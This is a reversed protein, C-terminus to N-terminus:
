FNHIHVLKKTLFFEENFFRSLEYTDTSAPLSTIEDELDGGKLYLIGNPIDNRGKNRINKRVRQFFSNLDTVARGTVFDFSTTISEYRCCLTSVNKLNLEGAIAEVVRIKKAISDVLTFQAEPFLVALPIGPFGGGTGADMIGTGPKFKVVRAISLSHLIHHLFLQDIDKRSIVNIRANWEPYLSGLKEFQLVQNPSLDQFYDAILNNRNQSMSYFLIQNV